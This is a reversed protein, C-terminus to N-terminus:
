TAECVAEAPSIKVRSFSHAPYFYVVGEGVNVEIGVANFKCKADAFVPGKFEAALLQEGALRRAHLAEARGPENLIIEIKSM